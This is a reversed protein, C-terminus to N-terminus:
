VPMLSGLHISSSWEIVGWLKTSILVFRRYLCCSLNRVHGISWSTDIRYSLELLLPSILLHSRWSTRLVYTWSSLSRRHLIQQPNYWLNYWKRYILFAIRSMRNTGVSGPTIRQISPCPEYDCKTFADLQKIFGYNPHIQPRGSLQREFIEIFYSIESWERDKIADPSTKGRNKM